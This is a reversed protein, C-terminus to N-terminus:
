GGPEGEPRDDSDPLRLYRRLHEGLREIMSAVLAAKFQDSRGESVQEIRLDIECGLKYQVGWWQGWAHENDAPQDPATEAVM